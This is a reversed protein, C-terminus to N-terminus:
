GPKQVLEELGLQKLTGDAPFGSEPDWGMAMRYERALSQDDITIGAVPGTAMPPAGKMRSPLTTKSAGTERLTFCQRLTQIRAGTELVEAMSLDWGTVANFFDVFPYIGFYVTAFNCVGACNGVQLYQSVAASPVGKNKYEYQELGQFQM